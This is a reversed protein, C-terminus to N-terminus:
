GKVFGIAFGMAMGSTLLLGWSDFGHQTVVGPIANQSANIVTHTSIRHVM